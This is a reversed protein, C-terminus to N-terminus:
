DKLIARYNFRDNPAADGNLTFDTWDGALHCNDTWKFDVTRGDVNSRDISLEVAQQGIAVDAVGAAQWADKGGVNREVTKGAPLVRLDYGLWGTKPDNDADIYLTMWDGVAPPTLPGATRVLFDVRKADFAVKASAIDNRGTTNVYRPQADGFADFDRQAPDGLTDRFEPGAAQWDDFNGDIRIEAKRVPEIPRVGKYHRINAIMQWYYNDGHGGAMPEIDKSHSQSFEDVFFVHGDKDVFKQALWENWGYVMVFEPNRAHVFDWEDQFQGGRGVADHDTELHGGAQRGRWNRSNVPAGRSMPGGANSVAVAVAMEELRGQEDVGLRDNGDSYPLSNDLSWMAPTQPRGPWLLKRFNFFAKAEDSMGPSDPSALILPKGKWVYWLPKYKPNQYITQYILGVQRSQREGEGPRCTFVIKPVAQGTKAIDLWVDAITKVNDFYNYSNTTDFFVVEVGADSLMQAHKRLVYPDFMRYYGFLPQGWFHFSHLPGWLPSGPKSLADPDTAMIQTNDFPGYHDKAAGPLWLYYFIGVHRTTKAPGVAAQTPLSRGLGDTAVWTDAFTDWPPVSQASAVTSVAIGALSVVTRLRLRLKVSIRM